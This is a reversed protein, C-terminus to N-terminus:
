ETGGHGQLGHKRLYYALNRPDIGLLEAAEKKESCRELAAVIYEREVVALHDRLALEPAPRPQSTTTRLGSELIDGLLMPDPPWGGGSIVARELVNRLERVNGPWHYAGLVRLAEESLATLEDGGLRQRMARTFLEAAIEAIDSVHERLPPLVIPFVSLRFFLDARFAGDKVRRALDENTASVVRVDARRTRPDGLRQFDGSELFRLLKAQVDLALTGVEDLFLTGGEAQEFKGKRNETAGSFAGKVHGFCESEFLLSPIAACNVTVLSRRSRSSANHIMHAAVEKGTGSEGTLLVSTETRAVKEIAARVRRIGASSGVLRMGAVGVRRAERLYSVEDILRVHDLARSIQVVLQEPAVPKLLFDFAGAKMAAVAEEISGAGTILIVPASCGVERLRHLLDLGSAGPMRLDTLVVSPAIAVALEVAEEASGATQTQFGEARLVESLSDRVYREDDVILVLSNM